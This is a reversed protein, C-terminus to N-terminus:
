YLIRIVNTIIKANTFRVVEQLVEDTMFRFLFDIPEAVERAEGKASSWKNKGNLFRATPQLVRPNCHHSSQNKHTDKAFHDSDIIQTRQRKATYSASCM